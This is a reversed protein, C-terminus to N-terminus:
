IIEVAYQGKEDTDLAELLYMNNEDGSRMNWKKMRKM